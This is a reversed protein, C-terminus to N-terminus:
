ATEFPLFSVLGLGKDEMTHNMCRRVVDGVDQPRSYIVMARVVSGAPPEGCTKFHVPCHVRMRVYLKAEEM